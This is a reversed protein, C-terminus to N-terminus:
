TTPRRLGSATTLARRTWLVPLWKEWCSMRQRPSWPRMLIRWRRSWVPRDIGLAEALEALTEGESYYGLGVHKRIRYFSDYGTKDTISFVAGDTQAQITTGLNLGGANESIFRAGEKNVLLSLDAGGTLDRRPVIINPFVRVNDMQEM